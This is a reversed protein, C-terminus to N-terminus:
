KVKKRMNVALIGGAIGLVLMVPILIILTNGLAGNNLFLAVILIVALLSGGGAAGLAIGYKKPTRATFFGAALACFGCCILFLATIVKPALQTKMVAIACFSVMIVFLLLGAILGKALYVLYKKASGATAAGAQPKRKKQM